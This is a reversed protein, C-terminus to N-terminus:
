FGLIIREREKQFPLLDAARRMVYLQYFAERDADKAYLLEGCVIDLALFSPAADLAVLDVRPVCFLDELAATVAVKDDLDLPLHSLVGIDLDSAGPTLREQGELLFKQAEDARSGFAYIIELGFESAIRTLRRHNKKSTM